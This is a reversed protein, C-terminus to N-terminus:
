KCATPLPKEKESIAAAYGKAFEQCGADDKALAVGSCSLNIDEPTAKGKDLKVMEVCCQMAKTCTASHSTMELGEGAPAAGKDKCGVLATAVLLALSALKM